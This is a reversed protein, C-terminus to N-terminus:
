THELMVATSLFSHMEKNAIEIKRGNQFLSNRLEHHESMKLHVILYFFLAGIRLVLNLVATLSTKQGHWLSPAAPHVNM